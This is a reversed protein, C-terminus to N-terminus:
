MEIDSVVINSSWPTPESVSVELGGFEVIEKPPVPSGGTKLVINVERIVNPTFVEKIQGYWFVPAGVTAAANGSFNHGAKAIGCLVIFYKRGDAAEAEPKSDNGRGGNNPFVIMDKWLSFNGELYASGENKTSFAGTMSLANTKVSTTGVGGETGNALGIQEPLCYLLVSAKADAFDVKAAEANTKQDIRVRMLSVERKLPVTAKFPAAKSIAVNAAYGFFVESPETYPTLANLANKAETNGTIASGWSGAKHRISLEKISTNFVNGETWLQATSSTYTTVNDTDSKANALAVLTYTGVPITSYTFKKTGTDGEGPEAIASFVVKNNSDYLFFQIQNINKWSTKPIATSKRTKMGTGDFTFNLEFTGTETSLDNDNHDSTCATMALMAVFLSWVYFSKKKM